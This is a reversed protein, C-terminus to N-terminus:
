KDKKKNSVIAFTLDNIETHAKIFDNIEKLSMKQIQNLLTQNFDLPLGLYFYNYTTNLRSSITENRLPESGLLFKKADDLEQQTMGKEIFEKIIKKVLDVSKAQTSLKTQLYGSAFHAVKSFNSRIYVSYALGEQVRIKEMLRSGFGGGLVFMMVKSKALDQKLDKIKFPAGFYVFAQETDKYLIKESKKDSTEFYPEEYAKGQPLFNLANDLRKLTQDIKLDGGLVVVLKNLEFVKAFQQKLDDLKIKQLSEKTGLAANALPTNTFLEQKLTLKALYDFDSEKQLLQALMRTKVKELANQTFNPSKLLEKLRTIAEDEYEKLFELTIQLDETSTDVNLSIAKQELLQAFGVAGLEKTGENLVQAFLKALGLQNKDSLSGGGRFALHIFGMPLLHNEEYIVPVKAQNIEQHTLASAQLGMFVGLLLTILIKKM